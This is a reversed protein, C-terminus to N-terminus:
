FGRTNTLAEIIRLEEKLSSAEASWRESFDALRQIDDGGRRTDIGREGIGPQFDALHIYAVRLYEKQADDDCSLIAFLLAAKIDAKSAPLCSQDQILPADDDALLAGYQRVLEDVEDADHDSKNKKRKFLNWM